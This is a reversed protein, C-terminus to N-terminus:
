NKTYRHQYLDNVTTRATATNMGCMTCVRDAQRAAVLIVAIITVSEPVGAHTPLAAPCLFAHYTRGFM